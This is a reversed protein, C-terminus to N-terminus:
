PTLPGLGLAPRLENTAAAVDAHFEQQSQIAAIIATGARGSAQVDSPYHMGGVVRSQAYDDARQWIARQQEPVMSSLVIAAMTVRTAHGSPYSFTRTPPAIAEVEPHAIWPRVRHFLPKVPDTVSAETIGLRGFLRTTAPLAAKDFGPGLTVGFMDYVTEHTDATAQARRGPGAAAQAALVARLDAQDEASGEDPPPALLHILGMTTATIYSAEQARVPQSVALCLLLAVIQRM